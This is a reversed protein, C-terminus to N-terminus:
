LGLVARATAAIKEARGPDFPSEFGGADVLGMLGSFDRELNEEYRRLGAGPEARELEYIQMALDNSVPYSIIYFASEFYHPIDGWSMSFFEDYGYVYFGYDKAAQRAIDNLVEATLNDAGLAYAQHEFEAFAAQQVYMELTDIMKLRALEEAKDRGLEDSLRSLVLYEMGQSYVEALDITEYANWNVYAEAFHGFEHAFSLVDNTNQQANLFLFPAEFDNLYTEFSMNAKRSDSTLDCLEYRLMFDFAEKVEPGFDQLASQLIGPLRKESLRSSSTDYYVDSMSLDEFVPVIWTKIGQLYAEAQEPTYDREFGYLYQMQEYSDYGLEAALQERVRVLRIFLEAYRENYQTYYAIVAQNYAQGDLRDLLEELNEEKGKYEIVPDASLARYEAVLTSEEQMLAVTTENYISENPDSYQECFGEWFYNEELEQAMPSAACAYYLDDIREDILTYTEACWLYEDAYYDDSLDLCSRIDALTYMTDFHYYFTFCEDLLAEVTDFDEGANIADLAEEIMADLEAPDPREYSMESFVPIEDERAIAEIRQEQEAQSVAPDAEPHAPPETESVPEETPEPTPASTEAPRATMTHRPAPAASEEAPPASTQACGCLTLAALLLALLCRLNKKM